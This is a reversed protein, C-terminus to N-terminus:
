KMQKGRRKIRTNKGYMEFQQLGCILKLTNRQAINM